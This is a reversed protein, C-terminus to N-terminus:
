YVLCVVLILISVNYVMICRLVNWDKVFWCGCVVVFVLFM